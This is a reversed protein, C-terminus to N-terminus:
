VTIPVLRVEFPDPEYLLSVTGHDSISTEGEPPFIEFQQLFAALILFLEFRALVEGPCSRRGVYCILKIM